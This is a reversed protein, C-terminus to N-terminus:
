VKFLDTIFENKDEIKENKVVGLGSSQGGVYFERNDDRQSGPNVSVQGLRGTSEAAPSVAAEEAAGAAPMAAENGGSEFFSAM